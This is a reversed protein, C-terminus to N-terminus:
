PREALDKLMPATADRKSLSPEPGEYWSAPLKLAPDNWRVGFEDKGTYEVDVLYMITADTSIKYGHL